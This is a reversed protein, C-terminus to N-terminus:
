EKVYYKNIRLIPLYNILKNITEIIASFLLTSILSYVFFPIALTYCLIFGNISYEYTGLSWVGFNTIVFFICAGLLSGSIRSTIGKM